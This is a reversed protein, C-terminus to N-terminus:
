AFFYFLKRFRSRSLFPSFLHAFHLIPQSPLSTLYFHLFFIVSDSEKGGFGRGKSQAIRECLLRAIAPHILCIIKESVGSEELWKKRWKAKFSDRRTLVLPRELDM